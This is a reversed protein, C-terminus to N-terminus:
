IFVLSYNELLVYNLVTMIKHEVVLILLSLLLQPGVSCKRTWGM